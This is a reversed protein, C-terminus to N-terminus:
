GIVMAFNEGTWETQIAERDLGSQFFMDGVTPLMTYLPHRVGGRARVNQLEGVNSILHFNWKGNKSVKFAKKLLTFNLSSLCRFQNILMDGTTETAKCNGRKGFIIVFLRPDAAIPIDHIGEEGIEVKLMDSYIVYQGFVHWHGRQIILLHCFKFITGVTWRAINFKAFGVPVALRSPSSLDHMVAM